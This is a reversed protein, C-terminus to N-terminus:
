HGSWYADDTFVYMTGADGLNVDVIFESFQMLFGGTGTRDSDGDFFIPRGGIRDASMLECHLDYLKKIHPTQGDAYFDDNDEFARAPVDVPYLRLARAPPDDVLEGPWEGRAIDDDTLLVVATEGSDPEFADNEMADRIFVAVARVGALEDVTRLEPTEALDVTILHQLYGDDHKPRTRETVGIPPGGARRVTGPLWPKKGARMLQVRVMEDDPRAVAEVLRELRRVSKPQTEDSM